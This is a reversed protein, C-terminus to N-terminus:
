AKTWKAHVKIAISSESGVIVPIPNLKGKFGINVEVGWEDPANNKVSDHVANFVTQLSNQLVQMADVIRGAATVEEAGPPLNGRIVHRSEPMEEVSEMEVYVSSGDHLIIEKISNM